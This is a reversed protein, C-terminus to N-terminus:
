TCGSWAHCCWRMGPAMCVTEGGGAEAFSGAVTGRGWAWRNAALFAKLEGLAAHRVSLSEHRLSASLLALKAQNPPPHM